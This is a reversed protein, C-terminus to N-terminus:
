TCSPFKDDYGPFSIDLARESVLDFTLNKTIAAYMMTKGTTMNFGFIGFCFILGVFLKQLISQLIRKKTNVEM